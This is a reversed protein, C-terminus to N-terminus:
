QPLMFEMLNQRYDSPDACEMIEVSDPATPNQASLDIDQTKIPRMQKDMVVKIKPYLPQQANSEFVLAYNGTNLRVFSGSPFIGLCKIFLQIETPDFDQDRMGYM